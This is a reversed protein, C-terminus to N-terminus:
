RKSFKKLTRLATNTSFGILNLDKDMREIAPLLEGMNNIAVSPLKLLEQDSIGKRNIFITKLGVRSPGLVDDDMSDGIFITEEVKWHNLKLIDKYFDLNPKYKQLMESTYIWRIKELVTGSISDFLPENDTTSGIAVNYKNIIQELSNKVDGFIERGYLSELMPGIKKEPDAEIGYEGFLCRLDEVFIDKETRFGKNETTNLRHYKKWKKYIEEANEEMGFECFIKATAKVSGKGTSVLTGYVDFILNKIM